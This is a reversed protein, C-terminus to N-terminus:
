MNKRNRLLEVVVSAVSLMRIHQEVAWARAGVVVSPRAQRSNIQLFGYIDRKGLRLGKLPFPHAAGCGPDLPDVISWTSGRVSAHVDIDPETESGLPWPPQSSLLTCYNRNSLVVRRSFLHQIWPALRTPHPSVTESCYQIM